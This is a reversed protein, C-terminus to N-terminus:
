VPKTNLHKIGGEVTLYGVVVCCLFDSSAAFQFSCIYDSVCIPGSKVVAIQPLIDM